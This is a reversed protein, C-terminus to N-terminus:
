TCDTSKIKIIKVIKLSEVRILIDSFIINTYEQNIHM